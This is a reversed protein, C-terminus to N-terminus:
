HVAKPFPLNPTQKEALLDVRGLTREDGWKVAAELDPKIVRLM